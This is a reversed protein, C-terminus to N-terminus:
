GIAQDPRGTHTLVVPQANPAPFAVSPAAAPQPQPRAPLAGFTAAVAEIAKDVTIDGVVVVEMPGQGLGAAIQSKLDDLSATSIEDRNPFTWRRDGPHMLGALDRGLVGSDTAAYQDLLTATYTKMRTMAEPRWGPESAY